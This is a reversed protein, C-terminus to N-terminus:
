FHISTYLSLACLPVPVTGSGGMGHYGSAMRRNFDYPVLLSCQIDKEIYTDCGYFFLFGGMLFFDAALFKRM